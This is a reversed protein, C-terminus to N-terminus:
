KAPPTTPRHYQRNGVRAPDIGGVILEVFQRCGEATLHCPDDFYLRGHPLRAAVDVFMTQHRAAIRRVAANHAELTRVVSVPTGWWEVSCLHKDYDLTKAKFAAQSYNQPIHYAFTALMVPDGREEAMKVVAEFNAEYLPPTRREAGDRVEWRGRTLGLRDGINIAMYQATYPLAFWGVEPHRLLARMQAIHRVHSYDARFERPPCNNTSIDNIAEYLLVLDFRRDALRAYKMRREISTRGPYALNIVRVPRKGLKEELRARLRPGIDGFCHHLVSAGLLLVDFTDDGHYPAVDDIGSSAVEGYTTRWIAEPSLRAVKKVRWWYLRAIGELGALLMLLALGVVCLKQSTRLDKWRARRRPAPTAVPNM